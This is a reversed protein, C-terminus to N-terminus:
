LYCRRRQQAFSKLHALMEPNQPTLPHTLWYPINESKWSILNYVIILIILITLIILIILIIVIIVIILFSYRTQSDAKSNNRRKKLICYYDQKDQNETAHGCEEPQRSGCSHFPCRNDLLIWPCWLCWCFLFLMVLEVPLLLM